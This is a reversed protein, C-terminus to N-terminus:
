PLRYQYPDTRREKASIDRWDGLWEERFRRSLDIDAIAAHPAGDIVVSSLATGLPSVVESAYDYGSAALHIGNEVARAHLLTKKGGWIPVLLIEAGQLAAERAPEPFSADQCILIAVRGFDTDFVQVASGPTIGQAMDSLPLQVKHHKGVINGDRDILVATNFLRSGEKEIMGFVINVRRARAVAAVAQTSPGPIPEAKSEFTGPAGIVNLLEGLVIVDPRHESAVQSAYAVAKQVSELGTRSGSPRYQVTAVRVRRAPPAATPVLSLKDFAVQGDEAWQLIFEIDVATTGAPAQLTRDFSVSGDALRDFNWVYDPPVEDGFTGRWRFIITASERISAVNEVRARAGFRYYGGGQLGTVRTTWGGYVDANGAGAAKLVYGNPGPTINTVAASEPRPSFARWGDPTAPMMGSGTAIVSGRARAQSDASASSSTPTPGGALVDSGYACVWLVVISVLSARRM